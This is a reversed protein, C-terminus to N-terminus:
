INKNFIGSKELKKKEFNRLNWTKGLFTAVRNYFTFKYKKFKIQFSLEEPLKIYTPPLYKLKQLYTSAM